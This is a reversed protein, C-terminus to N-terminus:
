EELRIVPLYVTESIVVDRETRVSFITAAWLLCDPSTPDSPEENNITTVVEPETVLGTVDFTLTGWYPGDVGTFVDSAISNGEFIVDGTSWREQGDGVLYTIHAGANPQDAFFEGLTDTYSNIVLDLTVAGDNIIVTRRLGSLQYLVVLSAGQSDNGAALNSPMGSITYEGNQRVYPTVDARYVFNRAAGWCTDASVGILQGTLVTGNLAPRTYSGSNGITAWYLYSQLVRAGDPIGDLVITGSNRGRLGIGSATVDGVITQNIFQSLNNEPAPPEASTVSFITAAWLLCDPSAPNGPDTNNITTTATPGTVLATVDFTHTGWFDGDIGSFIGAAIPTGNFNVNGADWQSQGDGILYTVSAQSLPSDADFGSITDTHTTRTFNLSVAGDNIVITRFPDGVTEYLVVLSAGQSDNGLDLNNPLGGITYTGNGTVLSTIEARYVFNNQVGWCTDGSTGILDGNVSFGDLTPNTYTNATGLTAWYLYARFITSGPPIDSITIEGTGTGRLGVGASTVDGAITYLASPALTNNGDASSPFKAPGLLMSFALLGALVFSVWKRSPSVAQKM